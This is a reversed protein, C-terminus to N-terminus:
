EEEDRNADDADDDLEDLDHLVRPSRLIDDIHSGEDFSKDYQFSLNPVYKLHVTKGVQGKLFPAAKRLAGLIEKRNEKAVGGMPIIFATANKLDPSARVETVTLMANALAPDRLEGRMLVTSLAHRIEEGVRLQRQSPEKGRSM